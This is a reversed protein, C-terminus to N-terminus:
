KWITQKEEILIFGCPSPFASFVRGSFSSPQVAACGDLWARRSQFKKQLMNGRMILFLTFRKKGLGSSSEGFANRHIKWNVCLGVESMSRQTCLHRTSSLVQLIFIIIIVVVMCGSAEDSESSSCRSHCQPSAQQFCPPVNRWRLSIATKGTHVHTLSSISPMVAPDSGLEVWRRTVNSCIFLVINVALLCILKPRHM